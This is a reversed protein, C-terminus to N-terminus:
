AAVCSNAPNFIISTGSADSKIEYETTPKPQPWRWSPDYGFPNNHKIRFEDRRKCELELWRVDPVSPNEFVAKLSGSAYVGPRVKKLSGIDLPRCPDVEFVVTMKPYYSKIGDENLEHQGRVIMDESFRHLGIPVAEFLLSACDSPSVHKYWDELLDQILNAMGSASYFGPRVDAPYSGNVLEDSDIYKEIALGLYYAGIQRLGDADKPELKGEKNRRKIEEKIIEELGIAHWGQDRYKVLLRHVNADLHEENSEGSERLVTRAANTPDKYLGRHLGKSMELLLHDDKYKRGDNIVPHSVANM